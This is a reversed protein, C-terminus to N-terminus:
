GVQEREFLRLLTGGYHREGLSTWGPGLEMKEREGQEMVFIGGPVVWNGAVLQALLYDGWGEAPVSRRHMSAKRDPVRGEARLTKAYPPDAFVIDFPEGRNKADLFARVDRPVMQHAETLQAPGTLERSNTGMLEFTSRQGEVSTVQAAGRSIAELGVSGTGAFLDLFRCGPVRAQLSSFLAERVRDQTPRVHKAPVRLKRGRFIGSTIRM